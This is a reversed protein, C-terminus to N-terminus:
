LKRQQNLGIRMAIVRDDKENKNIINHYKEEIKKALELKKYRLCKIYIRNVKREFFKDKQKEGFQVLDDLLNPFPPINKNPNNIYDNIAYKFNNAKNLNGM